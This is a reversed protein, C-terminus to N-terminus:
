VGPSPTRATRVLELIGLALDEAAELPMYPLVEDGHRLLVVTRDYDFELGGLLLEATIDEECPPATKDGEAHRDRMESCFVHETVPVACARSIHPLDFPGCPGYECWSPCSSGSAATIFEIDETSIDTISM